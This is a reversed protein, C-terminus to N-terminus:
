RANLGSAPHADLWERRGLRLRIAPVAPAGILTDARGPELAFGLREALRLSAANDPHTVIGIAPLGLTTFGHHMLRSAAEQAYGKGWHGAGFRYSLQVEADGDPILGVYGAFGSPDARAFVSWYGLGRGVHAFSRAAVADRSMAPDGIAAIHRMVEPDANMRAIADLDALRRPQLLLRESELVPLM